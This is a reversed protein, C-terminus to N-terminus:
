WIGFILGARSALRPNEKTLIVAGGAGEVEVPPRAVAGGRERLPLLGFTRVSRSRAVVWARLLCGAGAVMVSPNKTALHCHGRGYLM